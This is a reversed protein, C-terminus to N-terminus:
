LASYTENQINVVKRNNTELLEPNFIASYGNLKTNSIGVAAHIIETNDLVVRDPIFGHMFSNTNDITCFPLLRYRTSNFFSDCPLLRHAIEPSIIIAPYGSIPETLNCGTDCLAKVTVSNNNLFIRAEVTNKRSEVTQKKIFAIIYVTTCALLASLGLARFSINLYIEGNSVVAGMTTGFDTAFILAFMTGGFILNVAFFVIANKTLTALSKSPFALRVTLLWFVAKSFISYMFSIQPFFMVSAYLASLAATLLLRTIRLQVKLFMSTAFITASNMFFNLLFLMDIYVVPEM